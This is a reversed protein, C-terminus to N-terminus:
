VVFQRFHRLFVMLVAAIPLALLVGVFGFLQGGALIAFIVAVPHLGIRDGVFLPTLVATELVQGIGFVILVSIVHWVDYFQFFAAAVAMLIGLFFGLYPVISFLGALLGIVLALDLGAVWLGTSYIIGLGLMVMLQGRFFAGLVEHCQTVLMVSTAEIRKPILGHVSAIV